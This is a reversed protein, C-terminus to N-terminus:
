TLRGFGSHKVRGGIKGGVDGEEIAEAMEAFVPALAELYADVHRMEHALTANFGGGALFGHDLMRSTMLTLLAASEPHDFGLIAWEPRGP